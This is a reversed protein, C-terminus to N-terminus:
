FGINLAKIFYNSNSLIKYKPEIDGVSNATYIEIFDSMLGPSIPLLFTWRMGIYLM